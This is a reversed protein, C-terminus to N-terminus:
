DAVETVPVILPEPDPLEGVTAFDFTVVTTTVLDFTTQRTNLLTARLEVLRGAEDLAFEVPGRIESFSQADVALLGPADAIVGGGAVRSVTRGGVVADGLATPGTAKRLLGPLARATVPDVGIGPLETLGVAYWGAGDDRYAKGDRVLGAHTPAAREFDPGAEKTTPGRRMQIFFGDPTVLGTAISAGVYYEDALGLTKYRDAPDPVEIRPGGPKAYLTSRSVVTFGFGPGGKALSAELSAAATALRAATTPGAALVAAPGLTSRLGVALGTLVILVLAPAALRAVRASVLRWAAM